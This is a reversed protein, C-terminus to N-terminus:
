SAVPTNPREYWVKEMVQELENRIPSDNPDDDFGHQLWISHLDDYVQQLTMGMAHHRQVIDQLASFAAGAELAISFEKQFTM